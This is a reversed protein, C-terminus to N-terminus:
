NKNKNLFNFIKIKNFEGKVRPLCVEITVGQRYQNTNIVYHWEGNVNKAKKPYIYKQHSSCLDSLEIDFGPNL